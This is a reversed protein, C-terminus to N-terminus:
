SLRNRISSFLRHGIAGAVSVGAFLGAVGGAGTVPLKPEEEPEEPEDECRPDGPPFGSGPKEPCEPAKEPTVKAKCKKSPDSTVKKGESTEFNVIVSVTHEEHDNFEYDKYINGNEDRDTVGKSTVEGDLTFDASKVTVNDSQETYVTFRFKRNAEDRSTAILADCVYFFKEKVVGIETECDSSKIIKKNNGPLSIEIEVKVKAAKTFTIEKTKESASKTTAFHKWSGGDNYYYKFNAYKALGYKSAKTSFRYTNKKGDVVHKKLDNCKAGSEVPKGKTVPNGCAMVVAVQVKGNKDFLVLADLQSPGFSDKPHSHYYTKDGIKIKTRQASNLTTRGMTWVGTMVVEGKVLLEGKKNIVGKVAEREFTSYLSAPLGIRSDAFIVKLDGERNAKIDAILEKPTTAGCKPADAYLISNHSCDRVEAASSSQKSVFGGGIAGALALMFVGTLVLQKPTARLYRKKINSILSM